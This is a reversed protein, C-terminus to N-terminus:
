FFRNIGGIKMKQINGYITGIKAGRLSAPILVLLYCLFGRVCGSLHILLDIQNTAPKKNAKNM